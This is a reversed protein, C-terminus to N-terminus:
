GVFGIYFQIGNERKIVIRQWIILEEIINSDVRTQNGDNCEKRNAM